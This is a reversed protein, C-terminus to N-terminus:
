RLIESAGDYTAVDICGSSQEPVPEADHDYYTQELEEDCVGDSCDCSPVLAPLGGVCSYAVPELEWGM